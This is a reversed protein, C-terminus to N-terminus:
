AAVEEKQSEGPLGDLAQALAQWPDQSQPAQAAAALPRGREEYSPIAALLGKAYPHAPNRFFEEAVQTAVIHGHRMLAVHDAVTRVVALDHTILLIALGMEQQIDKLLELVQAQVTVDLATTPEDAILVSPRAALAIAIMIRQKQGGSFQHPYDELRAAADPIG